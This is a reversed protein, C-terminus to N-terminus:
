FCLCDRSEPESKIFLTRRTDRKELNRLVIVDWSRSVCRGETDIYSWLKVAGAFVGFESQIKLGPLNDVLLNVPFFFVSMESFCHEADVLKFQLEVHLQQLISMPSIFPVKRVSKTSLLVACVHHYQIDFCERSKDWVLFRQLPHTIETVKM